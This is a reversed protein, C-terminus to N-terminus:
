DLFVAPLGKVIALNSLLFIFIGFRYSLAFSDPKVYGGSMKCLSPELVICRPTIASLYVSIKLVRYAISLFTVSVPESPVVERRSSFLDCDIVFVLCFAETYVSMWRSCLVILPHVNGILTFTITDLPEWTPRNLTSEPPLAISNALKLALFRVAGNNFLGFGCVFTTFSALGLLRFM